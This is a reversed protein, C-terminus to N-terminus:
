KENGDTMEKKIKDLEKELKEFSASLNDFKQSLEDIMGILHKSTDDITLTIEGLNVPKGNKNKPM